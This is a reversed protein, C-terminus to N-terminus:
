RQHPLSSPCDKQNMIRKEEDKKLIYLFGAFYFIISLPIKINEPISIPPIKGFIHSIWFIYETIGYIPLWLIYLFFSPFIHALLIYFTTLFLLVSIIWEVLINAIIWLFSFTWFHFILAGASGLTASLTISLASSIWLIDIHKKIYTNIDKQFVIIGATAGFSLGFSPDYLLSLPEFFLLIWGILFLLSLSHIKHKGRISMYSIIGMIVARIVPADWWVLMGYLIVFGFVISYKIYQHIPIFQVFFGIIMMVFAINSGSVVLIHTLSSNKFEAKMTSNMYDTNGTTIGLLLATAEEPFGASIIKEIYKRTNEITPIQEKHTRTFTYLSAKGYAKHLWSYRSFSELSLNESIEINKEIKQDFQIQDGINISLNKPIDVLLWIDRNSDFKYRTSTTDITDIKLRYTKRFDTTYLLEEIVWSTTYKWEIDELTSYLMNMYQIREQHQSEALTFGILFIALCFIFKRLFKKFSVFLLIFIIGISIFFVLSFISYEGSIIGLCFSFLAFFFLMRPHEIFAFVQRNMYYFCCSFYTWRNSQNAYCSWVYGTIWELIRRSITSSWISM